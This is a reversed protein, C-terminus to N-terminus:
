DSPMKDMVSKQIKPIEDIFYELVTDLKEFFKNRSVEFTDERKDESEETPEVLGVYKCKCLRKRLDNYNYMWKDYGNKPPIQSKESSLFTLFIKAMTRINDCCTNTIQNYGDEREDDCFDTRTQDLLIRLEERLEVCYTQLNFYYGFISHLYKENYKKILEPMKRGGYVVAVIATFITTISLLIKFIIDVDSLLNRITICM